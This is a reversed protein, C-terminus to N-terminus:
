RERVCAVRLLLCVQPLDRAARREGGSYYYYHVHQDTPGHKARNMLLLGEKM